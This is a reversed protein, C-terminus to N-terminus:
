EGVEGTATAVEARAVHGEGSAGAAPDGLGAAYDALDQADAVDRELPEIAARAADLSARADDLLAECKNVKAQAGAVLEHGSALATKAVDVAAVTKAAVQDALTQPDLQPLTALEADVSETTVTGHEDLLRLVIDRRASTIWAQRRRGTIEAIAQQM